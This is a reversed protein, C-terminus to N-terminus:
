KQSIKSAAKLVTEIFKFQDELGFLAGLAHLHQQKQLYAIIEAFRVSLEKAEILAVQTLAQILQSKQIEDM